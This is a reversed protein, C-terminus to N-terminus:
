SDVEESYPILTRCFPCDREAHAESWREFCSRHFTQGCEHVCFLVPDCEKMADFCIVCDENRWPKQAVRKMSSKLEQSKKESNKLRSHKSDTQLLSSPDMPQQPTLSRSELKSQISDMTRVLDFSSIEAPLLFVRGIMFWIHKCPLKRKKFDMCSCSWMKSAYLGPMTSNKPEAPCQVMVDYRDTSGQVDFLYVSQESLRTSGLLLIRSDHSNTQRKIIEEKWNSKTKPSAKIKPQFSSPLVRTKPRENWSENRVENWVQEDKEDWVQFKNENFPKPIEPSKSDKSIEPIESIEALEFDEFFELPEYVSESDNSFDFMKLDMPERNVQTKTPHNPGVWPKFNTKTEMIVENSVEESLDFDLLNLESRLLGRTDLPSELPLHQIM